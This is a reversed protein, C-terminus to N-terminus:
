HILTDKEQLRECLEDREREKVQLLQDKEEILHTKSTDSERFTHIEDRLENEVQRRRELRWQIQDRMLDLRRILGQKERQIDRNEREKEENEQRFQQILEDRELIEGEREGGERAALSQGYQPAEKLVSPCHCIQQASPRQTDIDKLCDVALSYM